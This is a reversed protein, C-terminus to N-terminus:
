HFKLELSSSWKRFKNSGELIKDSIEVKFESTFLFLVSPGFGLMELVVVEKLVGDGAGSEPEGNGGCMEFVGEVWLSSFEFMENGNVFLKDVVGIGCNGLGGFFPVFCLLEILSRDFFVIKSHISDSFTLFQNGTELSTSRENFNLFSLSVQLLKSALKLTVRWQSVKGLGEYGNGLVEGVFTGGCFDGVEETVEKAVEDSGSEISIFVVGLM